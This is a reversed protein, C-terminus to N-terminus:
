CCIRDNVLAPHKTLTWDTVTEAVAAFEQRLRLASMNAAAMTLTVSISVQSFFLCHRAYTTVGISYSYQMVLIYFPRQKAINRMPISLIVIIRKRSQKIYNMTTNTTKM